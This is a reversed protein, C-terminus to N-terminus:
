TGRPWAPQPQRSRPQSFLRGQAAAEFEDRASGTLRLVNALLRTTEKRATANVGRELDSISRTSLSAAEALEEQTLMAEIRLRRLMVAFSGAPTETAAEAPDGAASWPQEVRPQPHSGRGTGPHAVRMSSSHDKLGGRRHAAVHPTVDKVTPQAASNQTPEGDPKALTIRRWATAFSQQDDMSGGCGAVIAIVAPLGPMGDGRLACHITAHSIANGAQAAMKRLSPQGSWARYSRLCGVLDAATRAALPNPPLDFGEADRLLEPHRPASGAMGRRDLLARLTAQLIEVDRQAASLQARAHSDLDPTAAQHEKKALAAADQATGLARSVLATVSVDPPPPPTSM